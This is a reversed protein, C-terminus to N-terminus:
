DLMEIFNLVKKDIPKNLIEHTIPIIKDGQTTYCLYIEEKKIFRVYKLWMGDIGVFRWEGKGGSRTELDKLISLIEDKTFTDNSEVHPNIPSEDTCTIYFDRTDCHIFKSDPLSEYKDIYKWENM